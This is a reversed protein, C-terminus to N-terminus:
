GYFITALGLFTLFGTVDTITTVLVGGAVAPDVKLRELLLPLGAGTIGATILNLLM